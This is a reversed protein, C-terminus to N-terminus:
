LSYFFLFPHSYVNTSIVNEFQTKLGDLFHVTPQGTAMACQWGTALWNAGHWLKNSISHLMGDKFFFFLQQHQKKVGKIRPIVENRKFSISCCCGCQQQWCYGSNGVQMPEEELYCSPVKTMNWGGGIQWPLQNTLRSSHSEKPLLCFPFSRNCFPIVVANCPTRAKLKAM